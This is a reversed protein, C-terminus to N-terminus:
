SDRPSPSTYLLCGRSFIVPDVPEGQGLVVRYFGGPVVEVKEIVEEWYIKDRQSDRPQGHIQFQLHYLGPNAPRKDSRCLRGHFEFRGQMDGGTIGPSSVM